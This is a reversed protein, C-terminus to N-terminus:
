THTLPSILSACKAAEERPIHLISGTDRKIVTTEINFADLDMGENPSFYIGVTDFRLMEDVL